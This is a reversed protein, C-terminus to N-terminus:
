RPRSIAGHRDGGKFWPGLEVLEKSQFAFRGRVRVDRPKPSFPQEKFVCSFRFDIAAVIEHDTDKEIMLSGRPDDSVCRGGSDAWAVSGESLLVRVGDAPLELRKGVEVTSLAISVKQYSAADTGLVGGRDYERLMLVTESDPEIRHGGEHEVADATPAIRAHVVYVSDVVRSCGGMMLAIAAAGWAGM